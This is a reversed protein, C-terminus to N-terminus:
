KRQPDPRAREDARNVSPQFQVTEHIIAQMLANSDEKNDSWFESLYRKGYAPDEDKLLDKFVNTEKWGKEGKKLENCTAYSLLDAAQLPSYWEDNAFGISVISKKIAPVRKKLNCLLAYCTKSYREDDDFVLSTQRQDEPVSTELYQMVLRVIRAMCFMQTNFPKTRVGEKAALLNITKVVERYFRADLAVGFGVEAHKRILFIFERLMDVKRNIDWAAAPSKGSPSMIERMHLAPIKYKERLLYQWAVCFQNWGEETAMYGAMCLYDSSSFHGSEDLFVMGFAM